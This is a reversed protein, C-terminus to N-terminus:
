IISLYICGVISFIPALKDYKIRHLGIRQITPDFVVIISDFPASGKCDNFRLRGRIFQIEAAYPLIVSHFWETGTRSPLLFVAIEIRSESFEILAKALFQKIESYPPNVYVRGHWNTFLNNKKSKYPAPIM